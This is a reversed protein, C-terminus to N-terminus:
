KPDIFVPLKIGILRNSTNEWIPSWQSAPIPTMSCVYAEYDGIVQWISGKDLSHNFFEESYISLGSGFAIVDSGIGWTSQKIYEDNINIWKIKDKLSQDKLRLIALGVAKKMFNDPDPRTSNKSSDDSYGLITMSHRNFYLNSIILKLKPVDPIAFRCFEVDYEESNTVILKFTWHEKWRDLEKTKTRSRLVFEIIEAASSIIFVQNLYKFVTWGLLLGVHGNHTTGYLTLYEEM